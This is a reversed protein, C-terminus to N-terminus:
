QNPDIPFQGAVGANAWMMCEQLKTLALSQERGAPVASQIMGALGAALNRIGSMKDQGAADVTHTSFASAINM